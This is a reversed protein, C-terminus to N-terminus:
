HRKFRAYMVVETLSNTVALLRAESLRRAKVCTKCKAYFSFKWIQSTADFWRSPRKLKTASIINAVGSVILPGLFTPAAEPQTMDYHDINKRALAV